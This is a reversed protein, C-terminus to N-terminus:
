IGVASQLFKLFIIGIRLSAHSCLAVAGPCWTATNIYYAAYSLYITLMPLPPMLLSTLCFVEGPTMFNHVPTLSSIISDSLVRTVAARLHTWPHINTKIQTSYQTKYDHFKHSDLPTSHFPKWLHLCSDLYVNPQDHQNPISTKWHQFKCRFHHRTLQYRIKPWLSLAASPLRVWSHCPLEPRRVDFRNFWWNAYVPFPLM